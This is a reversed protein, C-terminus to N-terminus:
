IRKLQIYEGWLAWSYLFKVFNKCNSLESFPIDLLTVIIFEAIQKRLKKRAYYNRKQALRQPSQEYELFGKAKRKRYSRQYSAATAKGKESKRYRANARDRASTSESNSDSYISVPRGLPKKTTTMTNIKKSKEVLVKRLGM